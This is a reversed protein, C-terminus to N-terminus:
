ATQIQQKPTAAKNNAFQADLKYYRHYVFASIAFLAIPLGIMMFKLGFITSATQAVNPVYGIVSLGVGVMFGSFAGGAKVLMTQISFIISESRSGTKKEGYDVVDALMVTGLGNTVGVGFKLAAGALGVLVVNGTIIVEGIQTLPTEASIISAVTLIVLSTIPLACALKWMKQRDINACLKPLLFVGAMEALGSVLMFIPFLDERGIAYTFYYIAFGGILLNGMNFSLVFGILAKLQDNNSIISVVDKLTFKAQPAVTTSVNQDEKVKFFTLLGSAIFSVVILCTLMIYGYGRDGAGFFDVAQLAWTGMIMWAVSALLRPWVVLKEREVRDSSMAPIMSWYPIDMITYTVGWMIYMFAAYVYAATGSFLHTCFLGILFVSNIITGSLIWPRFKGFRTRTNDVIMGMMPDTIADIVRAALFLVGVFAPSLEAVDTLYVMLFLYIISCAFDKGLAGLGYSAKTSLSLKNSM